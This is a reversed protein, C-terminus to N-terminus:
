INMWVLSVIAKTIFWLFFVSSFFLLWLLILTNSKEYLTLTSTSTTSTSEETTTSYTIDIYPIYASDSSWLNVAQRSTPTINNYDNYSRLLLTTTGTTNILEIGSTNLPFEYFYNDTSFTLESDSIPSSNFNDFDDLVLDETPSYYLKATVTSGGVSAKRAVYFSVDTIEIGTDPLFSTDFPYFPRTVQYPYPAYYESSLRLYNLEYTFIEAVSPDRAGSWTPESVSLSVDRTVNTVAYAIKIGLFSELISDNIISKKM